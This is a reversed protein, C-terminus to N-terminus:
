AHYTSAAVAVAATHVAYLLWIICSRTTNSLHMCPPPTLGGSPLQSNQKGMHLCGNINPLKTGDVPNQASLRVPQSPSSLVWVTTPQNAALFLRGSYTIVKFHVPLLLYRLLNLSFLHHM